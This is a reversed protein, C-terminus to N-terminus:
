MRLPTRALLLRALPLGVALGLLYIFFQPWGTSIGLPVVVALHVLTIIIWHTCLYDVSHLGFHVLVRRLPVAMPEVMPPLPRFLRRAAGLAVICSTLMYLLTLLFDGDARCSRFDFAIQRWPLCLAVIALSALKMHRRDAVRSLRFGLWYFVLGVLVNYFTFPYVPRNADILGAVGRYRLLYLLLVILAAMSDAHRLRVLGCYLLRVLFLTLLFWLPLNGYFSGRHLFFRGIRAAFWRASVPGATRLDLWYALLGIVSFVLFPVILRSFSRRVTVRLGAEARAFMGGKFFFWAMYCTLAHLLFAHFSLTFLQSWFMLHCYMMFLIFMGSVADLSLDRTGKNSM